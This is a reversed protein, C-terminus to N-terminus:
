DEQNEEKSLELEEKEESEIAEEREQPEGLYKPNAFNGFRLEIYELRKRDAPSIKEALLISLKKTQWDINERLDLFIQWNEETVATIKEIFFYDSSIITEKLPIDLKEVITRHAALLSFLEDPLIAMDGLQFSFNSRKDVIRVFPLSKEEKITEFAVGEKDVAFCEEERCLSVLAQREIISVELTDPLRRRITIQSAVPFKELVRNEMKGTRILFISQSPFFIFKKDLKSQILLSIEDREIKDTESININKVWFLDFVFLFYGAAFLGTFILLTLWFFRKKYIPKRKKYCHSKRRGPTM